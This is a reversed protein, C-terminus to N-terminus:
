VQNPATNRDSKYQKPNTFFGYVIEDLENGHLCNRGKNAGAVRGTQTHGVMLKLSVPRVDSVLGVHAAFQRTPHAFM